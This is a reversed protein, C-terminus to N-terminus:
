ILNRVEMPFSRSNAAEDEFEETMAIHPKALPWGAHVHTAHYPQGPGLVETAGLKRCLAKFAELDPHDAGVPKGNIENIDFALGAYHRSNPNHSGGCLESVAFSYHEALGLLGNLMSLSLAVTGGPAGGYSSRHAAQDAAIDEINQYANAEDVVGSVHTPALKIQPDSLIKEAIVAANMPGEAAGPAAFDLSEAFYDDGWIQFNEGGWFSGRRRGPWPVASRGRRTRAGASSDDCPIAFGGGAKDDVRVGHAIIPLQSLNWNGRAIEHAFCQTRYVTPRLVQRSNTALWDNRAQM